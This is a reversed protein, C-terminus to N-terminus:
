LMPRGFPDRDPAEPVLESVDNVPEPEPEAKADSSTGTRPSFHPPLIVLLVTLLGGLLLLLAARGRWQPVLSRLPASSASMRCYPELATAVDAPTAYRQDPRKALLRGLLALLGPPLRHRLPDLWPPEAAHRALKEATSGGAFPPHGTLLFFLLCGVSYIDARIDASRFDAAQEPALYDPTGLTVGDDAIESSADSADTLRALGMDLLKVVGDSVFCNGPKVDRHVLGRQRAHELGLCIQRAYNCAESMSLPGRRRVYQGLDVGECYEMVLYHHGAVEAADYVAVINPHSLRAAVTGERHFRQHSRPDALREPRIVKIAVTRELQVHRALYVVGMGGSGLWQIWEYGPIAYSPIAEHHSGSAPGVDFDDVADSGGVPVTPPGTQEPAACRSAAATDAPSNARPGDVRPFGEEDSSIRSM